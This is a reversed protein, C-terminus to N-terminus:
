LRLEFSRVVYLAREQAWNLFQSLSDVQDDYKGYPFQLLEAKFADLWPAQAPLFVSGRELAVTCAHARTTKDHEAKIAIPQVVSSGRLEQILHAGSGADEILVARPQYAKYLRLVERKLQPFELRERILDILYYDRGRVIWTTCVSYDHIQEAKSATDWSQVLYDGPQFNPRHQYTRFWGWRILNGEVPVPDQQYQASFSHSGMEERLRDLASRPEREPHLIHGVQRNCVWDRDIPICQPETAIAPLCLHVWPEGPKGLIHGVLDDVHLRQMILIIVDNVKDDLRSLLTGDFWEQVQRRRVDSYAESPKMPDDIVLFNGGRGTLTGGVSTALRFGRATTEFETESMKRRDLRTSPFLTQYWAAELVARCDRALKAALEQSYSACIIRASPDHGLLFAPFSTSACISKLSRPPVSIILRKIEGLMCQTLHFAIAEIHWNSLFRQGPAVTQFVRHIFAFLDARLMRELLRHEFQSM